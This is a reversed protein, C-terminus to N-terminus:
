HIGTRGLWFRVQRYDLERQEHPTLPRPRQHPHRDTRTATFLSDALIDIM